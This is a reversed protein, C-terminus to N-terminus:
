VRKSQRRSSRTVVTSRKPSRIASIESSAGAKEKAKESTVATAKSARSRTRLDFLKKDDDSEEEVAQKERIHVEKEPEPSSQLEINSEIRHKMDRKEANEVDKSSLRRRKAPTAKVEEENSGVIELKASRKRRGTQEPTASASAEVDIKAHCRESRRLKGEEDDEPVVKEVKSIFGSIKTLSKLSSASTVSFRRNRLSHEHQVPTTIESDMNSSSVSSRTIIKQARRTKMMEKKEVIDEMTASVEEEVENKIIVHHLKTKDPIGSAATQIEDASNKSPSKLISESSISQSALNES